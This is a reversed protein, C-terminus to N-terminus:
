HQIYFPPELTEKPTKTVFKAMNYAPSNRWNVVPRIPTNQKHLKTTTHLNPATPKMNSYKWKHEKQIINQKNLKHKIMKQYQDTPNSNLNTFQNNQILDHIKTKYEEIPLIVLVKGKDAKSIM